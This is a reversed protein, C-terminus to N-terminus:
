ARQREFESDLQQARYYGQLSFKPPVKAATHRQGITGILLVVCV